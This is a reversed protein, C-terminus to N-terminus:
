THRNRRLLQLVKTLTHEGRLARQEKKVIVAVTQAAVEKTKTSAAPVAVARTHM